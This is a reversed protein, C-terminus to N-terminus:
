VEQGVVLTLTIAGVQAVPAGSTGSRLKIHRVSKFDDGFLIVRRSSSVPLQVEAGLDNYVDYFTTGDASAQLTMDAATWSAPIDIALLNGGCLDASSSLSQGDAITVTVTARRDQFQEILAM